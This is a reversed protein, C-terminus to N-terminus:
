YFRKSFRGSHCAEESHFYREILGADIVVCQKELYNKLKDGSLFGYLKLYCQRQFEFLRKHNGWDEKSYKTWKDSLIDNTKSQSELTSTGSIIFGGWDQLFEKVILGKLKSGIDM